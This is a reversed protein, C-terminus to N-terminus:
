AAESQPSTLKLLLRQLVIFGLVLLGVVIKTWWSSIGGQFDILTQILGQILTGVLTGVVFGVGGTILTGGIVVAAIADLEMGVFAAPDGSSKYITALVGALASCFGAIVYTSVRTRAIPVGLLRASDEDGGVAYVYRGFSTYQAVVFSIAYGVLCVMGILSLSARGPLPLNVEQLADYFGSNIALNQRFITFAMARAFFMGALTVMFAPLDFYHILLGMVLGLLTGCALAIAWALLPNYGTEILRAIMVTTMAVVAGVSLDIGGGLIVFTAGIAAVALVANQEVLNSANYGSLFNKDYFFFGGLAYMLVFVGATIFLPLVNANLKFLKFPNSVSM